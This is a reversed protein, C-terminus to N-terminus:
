NMMLKIIKVPNKEELKYLQASNARELVPKLIDFTLDGTEEIASFIVIFGFCEM